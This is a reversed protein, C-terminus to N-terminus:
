VRKFYHVSNQHSLSSIVSDDSSKQKSLFHSVALTVVENFDLSAHSEIFNTLLRYTEEPMEVELAISTEMEKRPLVLSFM